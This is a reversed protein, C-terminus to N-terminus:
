FYLTVKPQLIAHHFTHFQEVRDAVVLPKGIRGDYQEQVLFVQELLLDFFRRQSDAKRLVCTHIFVPTNDLLFNISQNITLLFVPTYAGITVPWHKVFLM